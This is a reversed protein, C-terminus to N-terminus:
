DNYLCFKEAQEMTMVFGFYAIRQTTTEIVRVSRYRRLMVWSHQRWMGDSTLAYGTAIAVEFQDKNAQWLYSSNLHCQSPQGPMMDVRDGYWLQGRELIAKADPEQYDVCAEYGGFSLLKKILAMDDPMGTEAGTYGSAWWKDRNINEQWDKDLPRCTLAKEPLMQSADSIPHGGQRYVYAYRKDLLKEDTTLATEGKKKSFAQPV